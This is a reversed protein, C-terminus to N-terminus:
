EGLVRRRESFEEQDIEGRAFREKLINLPTQDPHLHQPMPSGHGPGALWRVLLVTIAVTLVLLFIMVLPGFLMGYGGGGWQMMGPGCDAWDPAPLQQPWAWRPTVLLGVAAASWTFASQKVM